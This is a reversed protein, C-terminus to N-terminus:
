IVVASQWQVVDRLWMESATATDVMEPAGHAVTCVLAYFIVLAGLWPWPVAPCLDLDPEEM